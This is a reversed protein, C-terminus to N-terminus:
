YWTFHIWAKKKFFFLLAKNGLHQKNCLFITKGHCAVNQINTEIDVDQDRYTKNYLRNEMIKKMKM